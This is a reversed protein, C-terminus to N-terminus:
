EIQLPTPLTPLSQQWAALVQSQLHSTQANQLQMAVVPGTLWLAVAPLAFLFAYAYHRHRCASLFALTFLCWIILVAVGQGMHGAYMHGLGPMVVGMAGALAVKQQQTARLARLQSQLSEAQPLGFTQQVQGKAQAQLGVNHLLAAQTYPSQPFLTQLRALALAAAPANSGTAMRHLLWPLAPHTPSTDELRTALAQAVSINGLVLHLRAAHALAAARDNGHSKRAIRQWESAAARLDGMEELDTAFTTDPLEESAIGAPAGLPILSPAAAGDLPGVTVAHALGSLGPVSLSFALLIILIKARLM